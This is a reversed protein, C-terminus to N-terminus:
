QECEDGGYIQKKLMEMESLNGILAAGVPKEKKYVIKKYTVAAQPMIKYDSNVAEKQVNSRYDANKDEETPIGLDGMAFISAYRSSCLIPYSKAKYEAKIGCASLGATKGQDMAARWLAETRGDAEACDGCAFIDDASTEMRSNVLIGRNVAIGSKKAPETNARVGCSFIVMDCSIKNGDGLGVESVKKDGLLKGIKVGTHVEYYQSLRNEYEVATEQDLVRPMLYPLGELLIVDVGYAYLLESIEVGIVGGGIVVARKSQLAAKKIKMIDEITRLSFIGELEIGEMPPIFARSGLAYICKEYGVTGKSTYIIHKEPCIKEVRCDTQVEIDHAKYWHEDKILLEAEEVTNLGAKSLLPRLYTGQKQATLMVIKEKVHERLTCAASFGAIGNGLIIYKSKMWM